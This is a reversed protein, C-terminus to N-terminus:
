NPCSQSLTAWSTLGPYGTRLSGTGDPVASISFCQAKLASPHNEATGVGFKRHLKAASARKMRSEECFAACTSPDLAAHLFDPNPVRTSNKLLRWDHWLHKFFHHAKGGAVAPVLACSLKDCDRFRNRLQHLGFCCSEERNLRSVGLHHLPIGMGLQSLSSSPHRFASPEFGRHRCVQM